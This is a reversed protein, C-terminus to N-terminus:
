KVIVENFIIGNKLDEKKKVVDPLIYELSMEGMFQKPKGAIM